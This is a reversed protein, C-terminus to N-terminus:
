RLGIFSVMRGARDGERRWSYFREADCSTCMGLSEINASPVGARELERRNAASLDLHGAASESRPTARSQGFQALVEPGVEYCCPGIGPGIAVQVDAPHTGFKDRMRALTATAIGAASGRWGAHVAAVTRTLPDAMLIPLCDATRISLPLGPDSSVLADGQGACGTAGRVVLVLSSHVQRLSVMKDQDIEALRTGFGHELWDLRALNSATLITV